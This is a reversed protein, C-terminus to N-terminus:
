PIENFLKSPPPLPTKYLPDSASGNEVPVKTGLSSFALPRILAEVLYTKGTENRGYILNLDGPELEFDELLPGGRSIRIHELRIAM